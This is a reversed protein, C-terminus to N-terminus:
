RNKNYFAQELKCVRAVNDPWFRQCIEKAFELQWGIEPVSILSDPDHFHYRDSKEYRDYLPDQHNEILDLVDESEYLDWPIHYGQLVIMEINRSECLHSLLKLKVRLDQIELRPSFLWQRWLLKSPHEISASSPWVGDIVFNRLSDKDVLENKREGFIEVDLKDLFTLQIILRQIDERDLVALSARNVIWQNSVAPGSVDLIDCGVLKLISTWTKSEQYSCSIGCGSIM